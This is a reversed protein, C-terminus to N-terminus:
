LQQELDARDMTRREVLVAETAELNTARGVPGYSVTTADYRVAEVRVLPAFSFAM